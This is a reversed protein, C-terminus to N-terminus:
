SIICYNHWYRILVRCKALVGAHGLRVRVKLYRNTFFFEAADFLQLTRKGMNMAVDTILFGAAAM